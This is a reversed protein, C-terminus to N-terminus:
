FAKIKISKVGPGMTINVPATLKTIYITIDCNSTAEIITEMAKIEPAIKHSLMKELKKVRKDSKIEIRVMEKQIFAQRKNKLLAMKPTKDELTRLNTFEEIEKDISEIQEKFQQKKSM